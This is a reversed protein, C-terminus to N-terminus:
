NSVGKEDFFRSWTHSAFSNAVDIRKAKIFCFSVVRPGDMLMLMYIGRVRCLKQHQNLEFIFRGKRYGDIDCRYTKMQCSKIEVYKRSCLVVDVARQTSFDVNEVDFVACLKKYAAAEALKGNQETTKSM